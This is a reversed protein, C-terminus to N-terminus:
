SICHGEEIVCGLGLTPISDKEDISAITHQKLLHNNDKTIQYVSYNNFRLLSNCCPLYERSLDIPIKWNLVLRKKM